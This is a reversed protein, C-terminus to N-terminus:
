EKEDDFGTPSVEVGQRERTIKAIMMKEEMQAAEDRFKDDYKVYMGRKYGTYITKGVAENFRSKVFTWATRFRDREAILNIACTAANVITKRGEISEKFSLDKNVKRQALVVIPANYALKFKNLLKAFLGQVKFEDMAPAKTSRDVNQYYDIIILDYKFNSQKKLLNEFIAEMGEITTTQGISGDFGDDIVKIRQSLIPIFKDFTDKQEETFKEHRSYAWGKILCTIRNYVDVPSEENTIILVKQNQTAGHFALNACTTSKGDGTSAAILILNKSFYPVLGSFDDNIFVKCNKAQDLYESSEKQLKSIREPTNFGIDIDKLRQTEETKRKIEDFQQDINHKQIQEKKQRYIITEKEQAEIEERFEKAIKDGSM